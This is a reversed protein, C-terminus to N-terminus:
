ESMATVPNSGAVEQDRLVANKLRELGWGGCISALEARAIVRNAPLARITATQDCMEWLECPSAQGFRGVPLRAVKVVKTM